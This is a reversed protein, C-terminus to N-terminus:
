FHRVVVFKIWRSRVGLPPLGTSELRADLAWELSGVTRISPELTDQCTMLKRTSYQLPTEPRVPVFTDVSSISMEDDELFVASDRPLDFAYRRFLEISAM